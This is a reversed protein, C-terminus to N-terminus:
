VLDITKQVSLKLFAALKQLIGLIFFGEPDHFTVNACDTIFCNFIAEETSNYAFPETDRFVLALNIPILLYKM